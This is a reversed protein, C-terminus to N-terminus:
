VYAGSLLRGANPVRPELALEGLMKWTTCVAASVV